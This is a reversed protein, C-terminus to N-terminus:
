ISDPFFFIRIFLTIGFISLALGAIRRIWLIKHDNLFKSIYNAAYVKILDTLVVIVMVALFLGWTNITEMNRGVMSSMLSVWFFIPFPTLTNILFGQGFFGLLSKNNLRSNKDATKPKSFLLLLGLILLFISGASGLYFTLDAKTNPDDQLQRMFTAAGFALGIYMFDSFWQGAVLAIGARIGKEISVQLITFFIPGTLVSLVLGYSMGELISTLLSFRNFKYITRFNVVLIRGKKPM